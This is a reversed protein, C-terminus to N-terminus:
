HKYYSTRHVTCYCANAQGVCRQASYVEIQGISVANTYLFLCLLRLQVVLLLQQLLQLPQTILLLQYHM